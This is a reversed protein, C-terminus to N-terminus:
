QVTGRSSDAALLVAPVKDYISHGVGVCRSQRQSHAKFKNPEETLNAVGAIYSALSTQICRSVQRLLKDATQSGRM